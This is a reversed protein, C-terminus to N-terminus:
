NAYMKGAMGSVIKCVNLSRAYIRVQGDYEFGSGTLPFTFNLVVNDIRSMNMSGSPKVDEPYLAFSYGYIHRNPIRTHHEYPQVTRYYQAPLTLTRDHGNVQIRTTILPDTTLGNADPVGSYDFYNNGGGGPNAPNVYPQVVLVEDRQSVWILEKTPHNFQQRSNLTPTASAHSDAGTFQVEDFLYEHAQQAFMRREMTDLFVYNALLNMENVAGPQALTAPNNCEGQRVFLDGAARTNLLIRVEHYQLAILPLAQEYFRNFWFRLPVYLFQTQLGYNALGIVTESFGTMEELRKEPPAALSEWLELYEGTHRDFNHGGIEVTVEDIMAHGVANTWYAIDGFAGPAAPNFPAGADYVVPALEVHFYIQALLDGSRQITACMKRDFGTQGNFCVEMECIAFNTYRRYGGKFFTMVPDCSLWADQPGRAAIQTLCGSAPM